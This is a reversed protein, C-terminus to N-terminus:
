TNAASAAAIELIEQTIAAQRAKNYDLTLQDIIKSANDAATKMAVMRASQESAQAELVRQYIERKVYLPLLETLIDNANPELIMPRDDAVVAGGAAQNVREIVEELSSLPLVPDLTPEQQLTNVFRSYVVEITDVNGAIYQETLFEVAVSIESFLAQDTLPFDALLNRGTRGLYQTGKRGLSVYAVDGQIGNILRFLNTNLGGCLGRNTSVLLIGRTKVERSELFPHKFGELRGSVAYLMQAMLAAFPRGRTAATQTKKMKSAAVLEMAKTIQRTNKVSKIRRRIERTNAM